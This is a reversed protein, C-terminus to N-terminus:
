TGPYLETRHTLIPIAVDDAKQIAGGLHDVLHHLEGEPMFDTFHPGQPLQVLGADAPRGQLDRSRPKRRHRGRENGRGPRILIRGRRSRLEGRHDAHM